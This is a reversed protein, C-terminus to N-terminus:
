NKKIKFDFLIYPSVKFNISLKFLFSLYDFHTLAKVSSVLYMIETEPKKKCLVAVIM